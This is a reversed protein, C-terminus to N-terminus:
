TQLPPAHTAQAAPPAQAVFGSGQRSPTKEQAVPVCCHTLLEVGLASPEIQPVSRTQLPPVHVAQVDPTAQPVSGSGHWVPAVEHAVPLWVHTAVVVGSVFPVLQPAFWTQLPPAQTAQVAPPAQPVFGFGHTAPTKEHAVPVCVQTSLGAAGSGAPVEQPVSWTQLPLPAQLAQVAPTAHAVFGSGHRVPVVEQEVPVCAQTSLASAGSGFPVTQPV